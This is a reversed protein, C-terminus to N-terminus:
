RVTKKRGFVLFLAERDPPMPAVDDRAARAGIDALGSLVAEAHSRVVLPRGNPKLNVILGLTELYRAKAVNRKLGQCLDDIEEDALWLAYRRNAMKEDPRQQEVTVNV